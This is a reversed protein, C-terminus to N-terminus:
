GVATSTRNRTSIGRSMGDFTQDRRVAGASQWNLSPCHLQRRSRARRPLYRRNYGHTAGLAPMTVLLVALILHKM